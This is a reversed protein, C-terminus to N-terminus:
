NRRVLRHDRFGFNPTGPIQFPRSNLHLSRSPDRSPQNQFGLPRWDNPSQPHTPWDAEGGNTRGRSQGYNATRGRSLQHNSRNRRTSRPLQAVRVAGPLDDKSSSDSDSLQEQLQPFKKPCSAALHGICGCVHCGKRPIRGSILARQDFFYDEWYLSHPLPHELPKGIHNRGMIISAKIFRAM